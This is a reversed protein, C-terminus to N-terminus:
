SPSLIDAADDPSSLSIDPDSSSTSDRSGSKFFTCLSHYGILKYELTVFPIGASLIMEFRGLSLIINFRGCTLPLPSLSGLMPDPFVKLLIFFSMTESDTGFRFHPRGAFFSRFLMRTSAVWVGTKLM